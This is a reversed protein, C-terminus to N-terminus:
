CKIITKPIVRGSAFERGVMHSTGVSNVIYIASLRAEPTGCHLRTVLICRADIANNHLCVMLLSGFGAAARVGIAGDIPYSPIM